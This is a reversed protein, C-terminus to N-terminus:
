RLQHWKLINADVKEKPTTYRQQTQFVIKDRASRRTLPFQPLTEASFPRSTSGDISLKLYIAHKPLNQIDSATFSPYFERALIEADESGAAFSILTGVNGLIASILGPPLQSIFQNAMGAISLRYKRAESLISPFDDTAFLQLEDIVLLFENRDPEPIKAQRLAALYIQTLMLSGLLSSSDEGIKGKSLNLLLIKRSNIVNLLDFKTKTQGVINRIIPNSLFQGVKNQIPSITETRFVKPYAEFEIEWFNRLIPDKIRRVIQGRFREDVLMRSVGLLTQGQNELLALLANRLVYELRPGWSEPWIKKFVQIIGSAVLSRQSTDNHYLPNFAIPYDIDAPNFYITENIRKPPIHDLAKEILDGHPDFVALGNGNQIDQIIMNLLLTSKGMGTKGVIYTHRRRDAPRIGFRRKINRYNTQGLITIKENDM